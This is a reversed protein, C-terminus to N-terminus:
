RALSKLSSKLIEEFTADERLNQRIKKVAELAIKKNYGLNILASICDLFKQDFDKDEQTIDEKKGFDPSIRDKLELTIREATKRGVGPISSIRAIDNRSIARYLEEVSSGSLINTALKPGIKSIGILSEFLSKEQTTLFGYLSIGDDKVHTYINLSLHLNKDPLNYYTSYPVFIKYGIGNVDIIIYEISKYSLVGSIKAIM